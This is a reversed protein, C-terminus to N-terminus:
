IFDKYLVLKVHLDTLVALHQQQEFAQSYISGESSNHCRNSVNSRLDLSNMELNAAPFIQHYIKSLNYTPVSQLLAYSYLVLATYLDTKQFRSAQIDTYRDAETM